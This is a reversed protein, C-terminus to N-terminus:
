FQQRIRHAEPLAPYNAPPLTDRVEPLSAPYPNAPCGAPMTVVISDVLTHTHTHPAPGPVARTPIPRTQGWTAADTTVPGGRM